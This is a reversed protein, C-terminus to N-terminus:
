LDIFIIKIPLATGLFLVVFIEREKKVGGPMGADRCGPMGADRCGPM